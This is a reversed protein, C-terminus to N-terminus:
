KIIKPTRGHKWFLFNDFDKGYKNCIDTLSVPPFNKTVWGDVPFTVNFEDCSFKLNCVTANDEILFEIIEITVKANAM